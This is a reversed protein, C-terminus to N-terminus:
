RHLAGGVIIEPPPGQPKFRAASESARPSNGDSSRKSVDERVFCEHDDVQVIRESRTDGRGDASRLEVIGAANTHLEAVREDDIMVPRFNQVYGGEVLWVWDGVGWGGGVVGGGNM